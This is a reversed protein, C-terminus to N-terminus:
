FAISLMSEVETLKEKVEDLMEQIEEPGFGLKVWGPDEIPHNAPKVPAWDAELFAALLDGLHVPVITRLTEEEDMTWGPDEHYRICLTIGRSLKWLRGFFRAGVEAHDVSFARQELEDLRKDGLAGQEDLAALMKLFRSYADPAAQLIVLAGLDHMLGAMWLTSMQESDLKLRKGIADAFSAVAFSHKWFAKMDLGCDKTFLGPMLLAFLMGELTRLGLRGIASQLDTPPVGRSYHASGAMRMVQGTLVPDARVLSTIRSLDPDDSRLEERLQMLIEPLVPLKVKDRALIEKVDTRSEPEAM